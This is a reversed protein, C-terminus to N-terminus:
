GGLVPGLLLTAMREVPVWILNSLVSRGSLNGVIIVAFLAMAGYREVGRLRDALDAPLLGELVRWGDLPAIPLMNFVALSLNLFTFYVLFSALFALVAAAAGSVAGLRVLLAALAALMVNSGPGAVAVLVMERRELNGPNVPVPKAWGFGAMLFFLAGIPDLHVLPNLSLRGAYYATPDGLRYATWAHAYEHVTLGVVLAALLALVQSPNQLADLILM